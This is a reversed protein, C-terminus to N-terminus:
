ADQELVRRGARARRREHALALDALDDVGLGLLAAADELIGGADGAQVAAAVLGLQAQLRGFGVERAEAVDQALEVRLDFAQLPLRPLRPAVLLKRALDALGLRESSCRRTSRPAPAADVGLLRRERSASSCARGRGGLGFRLRERASASARRAAALRQALRLGVRAATRARKLM